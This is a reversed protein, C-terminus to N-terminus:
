NSTLSLSPLRYPRNLDLFNSSFLDIIIKSTRLYISRIQHHLSCHFLTSIPNPHFFGPNWIIARKRENSIRTVHYIYLNFSIFYIRKIFISFYVHLVQMESFLVLYYFNVVLPWNCQERRFQLSNLSLLRHLLLLNHGQTLTHFRRETDDATRESILKYSKQM